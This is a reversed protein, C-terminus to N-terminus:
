YTKAGSKKWERFLAVCEKRMFGPRLPIREKGVKEMTTVCIELEHFGYKKAEKITAGYVIRSIKAWHIASFCMPCPETTSYITCGSLDISKLKKCAKRIAEMEAHATPDTSKWVKNHECSVTKGKKAIRAGFPGQGETIGKRAKAIAAEMFGRDDMGLIQQHTLLNEPKTPQLKGFPVPNLM